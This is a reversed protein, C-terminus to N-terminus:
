KALEQEFTARAFERDAEIQKIKWEPTSHRTGIRAEIRDGERKHVARNSIIKLDACRACRVRGLEAPNPCRLSFQREGVCLGAAKRAAYIAKTNAM